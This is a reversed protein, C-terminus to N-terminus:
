HSIQQIPGTSTLRFTNIIFLGLCLRRIASLFDVSSETSGRLENQSPLAGAMGYWGIFVLTKSGKSFDAWKKHL